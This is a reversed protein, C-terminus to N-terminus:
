RKRLESAICQDLELLFKMLNSWPIRAGAATLHGGGVGGYKEAISSLIKNLDIVSSKSRVSIVAYDKKREIAVGVIKGRSAMAYIASRGLSGGPEIIYAIKDLPVAKEYVKRRLEEEQVAEMLARIVLGTLDSPLGGSALHKVIMRKFDHLGRSGELGAALIGAEFYIMRKDWELMREKVWITEDLYDCVAGILALRDYELSLKDGFFKRTLESSSCKSDYVLVGPFSKPDFGVPLPHHDVYIVQGGWDSIEGLKKLVQKYHAKTLAVDGIFVSSGEDVVELDELLGAPHTFYVRKDGDLGAYALAGTVVGDGDDHVLIWWKSM